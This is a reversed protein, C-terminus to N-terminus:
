RCPRHLSPALHVLDPRGGALSRALGSGPHLLALLPHSCSPLLAHDAVVCHSPLLLLTSHSMGDTASPAFMDKLPNVKKAPPAPAAPPPTPAKASAKEDEDEDSSSSSGDESSSSDDSDEEESDSDSGMGGRLRLVDRGSVIAPEDDEESSDGGWGRLERMALEVPDLEEEAEPAEAAGDEDENEAEEAVADEVEMAEAEAEAEAEAVAEAVVEAVAKAETFTEPQVEADEESDSHYVMTGPVTAITNPVKKGTPQFPVVPRELGALDDDESDSDDHFSPWALEGGSPSPGPPPSLAAGGFLGKLIDRGRSKEALIEQELPDEEIPAAATTTTSPPSSASEPSISPLDVAAPPPPSDMFLSTTPKEAADLLPVWDDGEDDDDDDDALADGDSAVGTQLGSVPELASLTAQLRRERDVIIEEVDDGGERVWRVMVGEEGEVEECVWPQSASGSEVGSDLMNEGLHSREYRRPDVVIRRARTPPPHPKSGRKGTKKKKEPKAAAKTAAATTTTTPTPLPLTPKPIPHPPRLLLPRILHQLPTIHWNKLSRFM